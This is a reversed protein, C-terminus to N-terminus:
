GHRPPHAPPTTQDALRKEAAVRRATWDAWDHEWAQGTFNTRAHPWLLDLEKVKEGALVPEGWLLHSEALVLPNEPFDPSAHNARDLWERAKRQSGLSTPWGPADRYLLGLSRAAGAHDVQQDLGWATKFETEMERVLTLAGLLETRALQGLNMGLYYHAPGSQPTEKILKRSAEIGQLALDARTSDNTAFDALNYCARAFQWAAPSGNTASQFQARTLQYAVTARRVFESPDAPQSRATVALCLLILLWAWALFTPGRGSHDPSIM